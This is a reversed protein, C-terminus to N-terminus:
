SGATAVGNLCLRSVIAVRGAPRATPTWCTLYRALAPVDGRVRVRVTQREGAGLVFARPSVLADVPRLTDPTVGDFRPYYLAVTVALPAGGTNAVLTTTVGRGLRLRPEVQQGLLARVGLFAFFWCVAGLVLAVKLAVPVPEARPPGEAALFARTAPGEERVIRAACRRCLVRGGAYVLADDSGCRRCPFSRLVAPDGRAAVGRAIAAPIGREWAERDADDEGAWFTGNRLPTM